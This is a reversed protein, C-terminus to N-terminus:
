PRGKREAPLAGGGELDRELRELSNNLDELATQGAQLQAAMQAEAAARSQEKESQTRLEGQLDKLVNGWQARADEDTEAKVREEMARARDALREREHRIGVLETRVADLQRSLRDVREQEIRIRGLTVQARYTQLGTREISARLLRLEGLIERLTQQTGAEGAAAGAAGGAKAGEQASACVCFAFVAAAIRVARGVNGGILISM